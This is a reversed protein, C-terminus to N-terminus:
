PEIRLVYARYLDVDSLPAVGPWANLGLPVLKVWILDNNVDQWFRFGDGAAVDARSAAPSLVRTNLGAVSNDADTSYVVRSPRVNRDFHVGILVADSQQVFSTAEIQVWRPAAKAASGYPFDPFRLVYTGGQVVAFHRMHGLMYSTYGQEVRWRSAEAGRDDLRAVEITENFTYRDTAGAMGRNLQFGTVGFYPGACSLGSARGGPNTTMLPSCSPERLFPHDLVVYRGAGGWYGHPDWLAGALTWNLRSAATYGAQMHPPLARYGPDAQILRNNANRIMGREVPRIYYDDTGFSGSSKDLGVATLVSGANTFSVFANSSIDLTSNYSAVGLAPEAGVPQPQRNNLSRGVILSRTLTSGPMVAGTFARVLNDAAVWQVYDPHTARNLYGTRNKATTINKVAFRVGNSGDFPRGDATPSYLLLEVNGADDTMACELMVGANGNSRASNSEFPAHQMYQPQMPVRAGQKVPRRPYSLWFGNGQADAAVNNRVTNDPNTLWYASSGGCFNVSREHEALALAQAPARVKLVLNGEIVNRREVADELFVAHGKIDYCINNRLEIGNTGHIVMCRQKSDWVVSNRVYHGVADGLFAGDTNYSLLHWHIPYRGVKGAQGVRRLEVGDMQLQSARDMVMVHAGLGRDRWQADDAGQIVINRTLNGVEAREDLTDATEPHPATFTGRTLSMGADTVYQLRGWKFSDLGNAVTLTNGAAPAGLARRETTSWGDQLTQSADTSPYWETPAIVINDGAKWEVTRDLVLTRAGAEAHQNLRTWPVAPPTGYMMLKGGGTVQIGRAGMPDTDSVADGTLTVVARGSFRQAPTGARLVGRGKVRIVGVTLEVNSEPKFELEGEVTLSALAPTNQDLMVQMGAPVIVHAGATPTTGGWTSPDSWRQTAFVYAGPSTNGGIRAAGSGATPLSGIQDQPASGVPAHPTPLTASDSVTRGAVPTATPALEAHAVPVTASADRTPAATATAGACGSPMGGSARAVFVPEAANRTQGASAADISCTEGAALQGAVEQNADTFESAGGCASMSIAASIALWM